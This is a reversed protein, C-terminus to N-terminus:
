EFLVSNFGQKPVEKLFVNTHWSGVVTYDVTYTHGIKLHKDAHEKHSDCGGLGTYKIKTGEKAYIDM